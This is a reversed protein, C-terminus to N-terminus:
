RHNYLFLWNSDPLRGLKLMVDLSISTHMIMGNMECFLYFVKSTIAYYHLLECCRACVLWESM